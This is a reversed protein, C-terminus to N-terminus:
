GVRTGVVVGHPRAFEDLVRVEALGADTLMAVFEETRRGRGPTEVRMMLDFMPGFAGPPDGPLEFVVVSGGPRCIATALQLVRACDADDFEHLLHSLLVLDCGGGVASAADAALLDAETITIRARVNPDASAIEEAVWKTVPPLDVLTVSAGATALPVAYSGLGGGLDAVSVGPAFGPLGTLDPGTERALVVLARLFQRAQEPDTALRQQWPAVLPKGTRVADALDLWVRAFFAEKEAVLRLDGTHTLRRAMVTTEYLEGCRNLLALGVLSDLLAATASPDTGLAAATAVADAPGTELADFVGLRAAATLTAAAQYGTMLDIVGFVDKSM